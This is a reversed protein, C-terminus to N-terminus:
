RYESNLFRNNKAESDASFSYMYLTLNLIADLNQQIECGVGEVAVATNIIENEGQTIVMRAPLMEKRVNEFWDKFYLPTDYETTNNAWSYKHSFAPIRVSISLDVRETAASLLTLIGGCTEFEVNKAKVEMAPLTAPPLPLVIKEQGNKYTFVINIM